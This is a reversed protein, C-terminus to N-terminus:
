FDLNPPTAGVAGPPLDRGDGDFGFPDVPVQEEM